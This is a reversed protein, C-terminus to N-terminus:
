EVEGKLQIKPLTATDGMESGTFLLEFQVYGDKVYHAINAQQVDEYANTQQNLVNLQLRDDVNEVVLEQWSVSTQALAKPLYYKMTYPLREFYWETVDTTLWDSYNGQHILELQLDSAELVVEGKYTMASQLPAAILVDKQTKADKKLTAPLTAELATAILLPTDVSGVTAVALQLLSNQRLEPLQKMRQNHMVQDDVMARVFYNYEMPVNVEATEGAALNGIDYFDRGTWVQVNELTFSFHNTVKGTLHKDDITLQQEIYGAPAPATGVISKVGWYPIGKVILENGLQYSLQNADAPVGGTHYTAATVNDALEFSYDGAKNALVSQTFYQTGGHETATWLMMEQLQPKWLRDKAGVVFLGISFVISITPILWWAHERKDKKKLIMYLIVSVVLIYAALVALVKWISLAFAEFLENNTTLQNAIQNHKSEVYGNWMSAEKHVMQSFLQSYGDTQLLAMDTLAFTTQVVEGQQVPMVGALMKGSTPWVTADKQLAANKVLLESPFTGDKALAKLEANSVTTTGETFQLPAYSAFATQTLAADTVLKGGGAVWEALATQEEETLTNFASVILVDFMAYDRADLQPSELKEVVVEGTASARMQQLSTYAADLDYTGIVFAEYNLMAPKNETIKVNGIVRNDEIDGAYLVFPDMMQDVYGQYNEIFFSLEMQEGADLQVPFVQGAQLQYSEKFTTMLYGDFPGDNNTILVDVRAPEEMKVKGNLGYTADIKIEASAYTIPLVCLLFLFVGIRKIM